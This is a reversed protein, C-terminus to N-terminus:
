AQSSEDPIVWFGPEDLFLFLLVGHVILFNGGRLDLCISERERALAVDGKSDAVLIVRTPGHHQVDDHLGTRYDRCVEVFADRLSEVHHFTLEDVLPLFM